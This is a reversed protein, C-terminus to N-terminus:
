PPYQSTHHHSRSCNGNTSNINSPVTSTAVTM